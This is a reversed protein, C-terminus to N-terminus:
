EQQLGLFSADKRHKKVLDLVEKLNKKKIEEKIHIGEKILEELNMFNDDDFTIFNKRQKPRERRVEKEDSEDDNDEDDDNQNKNEIGTYPYYDIKDKLVSPIFIPNRAVREWELIQRPNLKVFKPDLVLLNDDDLMDELALIKVATTIIQPHQVVFQGAKKLGNGISKLFNFEYDAIEEIETSFALTSLATFTLIKKM